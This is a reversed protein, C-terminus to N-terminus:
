LELDARLGNIAVKGNTCTGFHMKLAHRGMFQFDPSKYTSQSSSQFDMDDNLDVRCRKRKCTSKRHFICSTFVNYNGDWIPIM